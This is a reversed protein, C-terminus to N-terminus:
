GEESAVTLYRVIREREVASIRSRATMRDVLPGWAPAPYERPRHLAHCGSCRAVYLRRGEVLSAHDADPWTARARALHEPSVPPIGGACGLAGGALLAM